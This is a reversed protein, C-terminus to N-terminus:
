AGNRPARNAVLGTMRRVLMISVGCAGFETAQQFDNYARKMENTVDPWDVMFQVDDSKKVVFHVPATHGRDCLCVAASETLVRGLAATLAPIGSELETLDLDAETAM